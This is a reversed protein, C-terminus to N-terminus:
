SFVDYVILDLNLFLLNEHLPNSSFSSLANKIDVNSIKRKKCLIPSLFICPTGNWWLMKLLISNDCYFYMIDDMKGQNKALHSNYHSHWLTFICIWTNLLTWQTGRREHKWSIVCFLHFNERILTLCSLILICIMLYYVESNFCNQYLNSNDTKMFFDIFRGSYLHNLNLNQHKYLM